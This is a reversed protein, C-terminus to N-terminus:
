HRTIGTLKDPNRTIYIATIRGESIELATTQLVGGVRSVYGPLGDIITAELFEMGDGFKRALSTFLRLLNDAGTIVNPYSHVKGGGDAHLSAGEALMAGLVAPDGSRCAEFFARALEEGKDRPVDYRPRDIQVHARARSALQRTASPSREITTAVEDLPQGFVDHLLFAARELPSLRELAMMLSLTLNDPRLTDDEPEILPEPLWTGPYTERRMRASKMQDLCLRSVTRTLWAPPNEVGAAGHWRLFADQVVDEAEAHSGLMRYALRLLRPRQAEFIAVPDPPM